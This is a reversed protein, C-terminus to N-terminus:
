VGQSIAMEAVPTFCGATFFLAAAVLSWLGRRRGDEARAHLPTGPKHGAHNLTVALQLLGYLGILLAALMSAHGWTVPDPIM